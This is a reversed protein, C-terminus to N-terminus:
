ADGRLSAGGAIWRFLAHRMPGQPDLSEQAAIETGLRVLERAEEVSLSPGEPLAPTAFYLDRTEDEEIDSFDFFEDLPLKPKKM